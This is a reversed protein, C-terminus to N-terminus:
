PRAPADLLRPRARPRNARRRRSRRRGARRSRRTRGDPAGPRCRGRSPSSPAAGGRRPRRSRARRLRAPLPDLRGALVKGGAAAAAELVEGVLRLDLRLRRPDHVRQAPDGPDDLRRDLRDDRRLLDEAVAVLHLVRERGARVPRLEAQVAGAAPVLHEPDLLAPERGVEAVPDPVRHAVPRALLPELGVVLGLALAVEAVQDHALAQVRALRQNLEHCVFALPEVALPQDLHQRRERLHARDVPGDVVRRGLHRVQRGLEEPTGIRDLLLELPRRKRTRGFAKRCVFVRM